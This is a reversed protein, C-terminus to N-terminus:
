YYLDWLNESLVAQVKAWHRKFTSRSMGMLDASERESHHKLLECIRQGEPDLRELEEALADLLARDMAISEPSPAEDPIADGLTLGDCDELPADLSVQNGAALFECVQCDGDCSWLKAKPCVCRRLQRMLKQIRWIEPYLAHYEEETIPVLSVKHPDAASRIPYFRQKTESM